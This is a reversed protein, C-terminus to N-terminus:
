AASPLRKRRGVSALRQQSAPSRPLRQQKQLGRRHEPGRLHRNQRSSGGLRFSPTADIWREPLDCSSKASGPTNCYRTTAHVSFPAGTGRKSTSSRSPGSLPELWGATSLRCHRPRPPRLLVWDGKAPRLLRRLIPPLSGRPARPASAAVDLTRPRLCRHHDHLHCRTLRPQFCCNRSDSESEPLSESGLGSDMIRPLTNIVHILGSLPGQSFRTINSGLLTALTNVDAWLPGCLAVSGAPLVAAPHVCVAPRSGQAQM